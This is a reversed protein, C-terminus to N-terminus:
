RVVLERPLGTLVECGDDTVVTTESFAVGFRGLMRVAVPHHFVQGAQLPEHTGLTMVGTEDAWTPPFGAGVGYGFVGHFVIDDGARHLSEWGAEAVEHGTVGAKITGLVNDLAGLCADAVTRVEASPTGVIASRMTPATYRQICAGMELLVTDGVEIPVRKHSSHLISSRRGTTVIPDVCMYESGSGIMADYAAAAVDHDLKGAEIAEIAAAMGVDTISASRRLHVVEEESKTAKVGPVISSGDVLEAKPLGTKLAEFVQVPLARSSTETAVRSTALGEDSILDALYKPRDNAAYGHVSDFWSHLLAGGLEMPDVILLPSGDMPLIVCESNYVSFTQFGSLYFVHPPHFVVLADVGDAKMRERVMRLRREYEKTSFAPEQPLGELAERGVPGGAMSYHFSPDVM